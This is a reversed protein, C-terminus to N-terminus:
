PPRDDFWVEVSDEEAAAEELKGAGGRRRRRRRRRGRAVETAEASGVVVVGGATSGRGVGAGAGAEAGEGEAKQQEAVSAAGEAGAVAASPRKRKKKRKPPKPRGPRVRFALLRKGWRVTGPRLRELLVARLEQRPIRLNGRQVRASRVNAAAFDNGYYGLIAGDPSFIFHRRSPSQQEDRAKVTDLIGLKALPGQENYTLTLGYGQRRDDFAPDQEYM